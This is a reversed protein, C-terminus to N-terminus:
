TNGINIYSGVLVAGITTLADSLIFIVLAIIPSIVVIFNFKPKKFGFLIALLVLAPTVVLLLDVFLILIANTIISPNFTTVFLPLVTIVNGFFSILRDMFFLAFPLALLYNFKESYEPKFNDILYKGAIVLMLTLPVFFYLVESIFFCLYEPHFGSEFIYTLNYFNIPFGIGSYPMFKGDVFMISFHTFQLILSFFALVVGIGYTIAQKTNIKKAM